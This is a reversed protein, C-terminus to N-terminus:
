LQKNTANSQLEGALLNPYERNQRAAYYKRFTIVGIFGVVVVLAAFVLLLTIVVAVAAANGSSRPKVLMSKSFSAVGGSAYSSSWGYAILTVNYKAKGKANLEYRNSPSEEAGSIYQTIQGTPSSAKIDTEFSDTENAILIKYYSVASQPCPTNWTISITATKNISTLEAKMDTFAVDLIDTWLPYSFAYPYEPGTVVFDNMGAGKETAAVSLKAGEVPPLWRKVVQRLEYDISNGPRLFICVYPGVTVVVYGSHMLVVSDVTLNNAAVPIAPFGNLTTDAVLDINETIAWQGQSIMTYEYIHNNGPSTTLFRTSSNVAISDGFKCGGDCIVPSNIAAQLNWNNNESAYLYIEENQQQQQSGAPPLVGAAITNDKFSLSGSSVSQNPHTVQQALTWSTGDFIYVQVCTSGAVTAAITQKDIAISFRLTSIQVNNNNIDNPCVGMQIKEQLSWYYEGTEDTGISYIYINTGQYANTTADQRFSGIALYGGRLAVVAGFGIENVGDDTVVSGDAHPTLMAPQVIEQFEEWIEPTSPTLPPVTFFTFVSGLVQEGFHPAGLALFEGDMAIAGGLYTEVTPMALTPLDFTCINDDVNRAEIALFLVFFLALGVLVSTNNNRM